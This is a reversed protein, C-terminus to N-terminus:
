FKVIVSVKLSTALKGTYICSNVCYENSAMMDRAENFTRYQITRLPISNIKVGMEQVIGLVHM